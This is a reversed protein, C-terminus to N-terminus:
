HYHEDTSNDEIIDDKLNSTMICIAAVYMVHINRSLADFVKNENGKHKIDIEYEYLFEM